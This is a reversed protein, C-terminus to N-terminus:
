KRYLKHYVQYKKNKILLTPKEINDDDIFEKIMCLKLSTLEKM